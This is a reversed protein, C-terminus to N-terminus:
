YKINPMKPMKPNMMSNMNKPNTMKQIDNIHYKDMEDQQRKNEEKVQDNLEEIFMEYEWMFMRDIESPQIHFNKALSAKIKILNILDIKFLSFIDYEIYAQNLILKDRDSSKLKLNLRSSLESM